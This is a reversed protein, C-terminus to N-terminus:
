TFIYVLNILEDLSEFFYNREKQFQLKTEIMYILASFKVSHFQQVYYGLYGM